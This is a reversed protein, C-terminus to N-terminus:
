RLADRSESGWSPAVAPGISAMSQNAEDGNALSESSPGGFVMLVIALACFLPLALGLYLVLRKRAEADAQNLQTQNLTTM